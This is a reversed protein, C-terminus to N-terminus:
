KKIVKFLDKFRYSIILSYIALVISVLVMVGKLGLTIEMYPLILNGLTYFLSGFTVNLGIFTAYVEKPINFQIAQTVFVNYFTLVVSFLVIPIIYLSPSLIVISFLIFSPVLGRLFLVSYRGNVGKLDKNLIILYIADYLIFAVYYIIYNTLFSFSLSFAGIFVPLIGSFFNSFFNDIVYFQAGKKGKLLSFSMNFILKANGTGRPYNILFILPTHVFLMYLGLILLTYKLGVIFLSIYLLIISTFARISHTLVWINRYDKYSNVVNRFVKRHNTGKLTYVVGLVAYLLFIFSVSNSYVLSSVLFILGSLVSLIFDYLRTNVVYDTLFGSIITLHGLLYAISLLVGVLIINKSFLFVYAPLIFSLALYPQISHQILYIKVDRNKFINFGM